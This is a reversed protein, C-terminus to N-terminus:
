LTDYSTPLSPKMPTHAPGPKGFFSKCQISNILLKIKASTNQVRPIIPGRLVWAASSYLSAPHRCVGVPEPGRMRTVQSCRCPEPCDLTGCPGLSIPCQGHCLLLLLLLPSFLAGNPPLTPGRPPLVAVRGDGSLTGPGDACLSVRGGLHQCLFQQHDPPLNLLSQGCNSCFLLM